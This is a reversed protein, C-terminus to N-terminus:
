IALSQLPQAGSRVIGVSCPGMWYSSHTHLWLDTSDCHILYFMNAQCRDCSKQIRPRSSGNWHVVSLTRSRDKQKHQSVNKHAESNVSFDNIM